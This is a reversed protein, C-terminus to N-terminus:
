LTAEFKVTEQWWAQRTDLINTRPNDHGFWDWLVVGNAGQDRVTELQTRWFNGEIFQNGRLRNSTHYRCWLFPYVPKGFQQAEEINGRAYAVWGPIDDYFTYLSPVIFDAAEAIPKLFQNVSRWSTKDGPQNRVPTWYDRVPPVGYVGLKLSPAAERMWQIVDVYKNISHQVKDKGDQNINVQWHEIDIVFHSFDKAATRANRQCADRDPRSRDNNKWFGRDDVRIPTMGIQPKQAYLLGDFITFSNARGASRSEVKQCASPLLISGGLLTLFQRRNWVHSM